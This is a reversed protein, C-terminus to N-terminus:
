DAIIPSIKFRDGVKINGEYEIIKIYSDKTKILLYDKNKLLVQGPIGKYVPADTIIESKIFVVKGNETYSCACPGPTTIARIFNFVERSTQNWNLIEDGTKRMGCYLGNKNITDQKIRNDKGSQIQKVADYLIDPCETYAINLLTNYDDSDTIPYTRQLIIDGTDVGDDVYHVTIGFEKEDNILAWNLINRGRYYPLKGAHCNIVSLPPISRVQARFIQNFSMSVFLDSKYSTLKEIFEESNINPTYLVDIGTKKGLEMLVPDKFDNRVCIFDITISSDEYLKKFANHGWKGDAFYGIHLKRFM